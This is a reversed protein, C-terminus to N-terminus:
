LYSESICCIYTIIPIDTLAKISKTATKMTICFDTEGSFSWNLKFSQTKVDVCRVRETHYIVVVCRKKAKLKELDLKEIDSVSVLFSIHLLCIKKYYCGKGCQGALYKARSNLELVCFHFVFWDVLWIM